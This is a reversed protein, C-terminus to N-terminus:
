HEGEGSTQTDGSIEAWSVGSTGGIKGFISRNHILKVVVNKNKDGVRV